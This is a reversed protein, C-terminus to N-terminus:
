GLGPKMCEVILSGHARDPLEVEALERIRSLNPPHVRADPFGARGLEAVLSEADYMCRHPHRFLPALRRKWVSDGPEEFGVGLRDVLDVAPFAGKDYEALIAALDPVVIRLVGGPALVRHCEALFRRGEDRTLHELTHSSYIVEASDDAWPFPRRLDQVFIERSWEIRLGALRALAGCLWPLKALRAGLSADVNLWGRPTVPGCGLHLRLSRGETNRM